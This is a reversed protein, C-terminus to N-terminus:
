ESMLLEAEKKGAECQYEMLVKQIRNRIRKKEEEKLKPSLGDLIQSSISPNFVYRVSYHEKSIAIIEKPNSEFYLLDTEFPMNKFDNVQFSYISDDINSISYKQYIILWADKDLCNTNLNGIESTKSNIGYYCGTFLLPVLIAVFTKM